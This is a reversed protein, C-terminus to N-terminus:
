ADLGIVRAGRGTCQARLDPWRLAVEPTVEAGVKGTTALRGDVMPVQGSTYVFSGSRVAPIYAAVPPNVPPLEIGLETLRALHSSM